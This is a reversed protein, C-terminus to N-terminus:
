RCLGDCGGQLDQREDRAQYFREIGELVKEEEEIQQTFINYRLQKPAARLIEILQNAEIKQLKGTPEITESGLAEAVATNLEPKTTSSTAELWHKGLVLLEATVKAM